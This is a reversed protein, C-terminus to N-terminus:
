TIVYRLVTTESVRPAHSTGSLRRQDSAWRGPTTTKAAGREHVTEYM